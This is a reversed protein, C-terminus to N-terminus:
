QAAPTAPATEPTPAAAPPPTTVAPAPVPEAPAAAPAPQESAAPVPTASNAAPAEVVPTAPASTTAPGAATKLGDPNENKFYRFFESDPSLVMTTGTAGLSTRYAQLSRYFEFFEPDKNYADAFVQSRQAEGEGRLIESDRRAAAVIEVAQRDAIAKLSQAAQQGGARIRAAEANREASMREFTQKSVDEMLDTRLIRVDTVDIGLEAMGPRILDRAERMMAPREASLAADFKRLGYVQRLAADFRTSIRQEALGIEGQVRERFKVPDTIRYTLFADVVYTAGDSVQLQLNAIDYRLLRDEIIQVTDVLSTPLKFYIGPEKRVDTIQGFRLVIAQERVNVVYISSFLLYIVIVAGIGLVVLRNM